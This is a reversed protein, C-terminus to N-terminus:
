NLEIYSLKTSTVVVGFWGGSLIFTTSQLCLWQGLQCLLRIVKSGPHQSQDVSVVFRHHLRAIEGHVVDSVTDCDVSSTTEESLTDDVCRQKSPPPSEVRVCLTLTLRSNLYRVIM